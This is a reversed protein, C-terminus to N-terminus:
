LPYSYVGSKAWISAVLINACVRSFGMPRVIWNRQDIGIVSGTSFFNSHWNSFCAWTWASVILFNHVLLTLHNKAIIQVTPVSSSSYGHLNPYPYWGYRPHIDSTRQFHFRRHPSTHSVRRAVRGEGGSTCASLYCSTSPPFCDHIM